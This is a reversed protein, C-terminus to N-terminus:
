RGPPRSSRPQANAFVVVTECAKDHLGQRNRDWLIQLFGLLGVSLSAAYGGFREFSMWWGMPKGDLRLVRVGAVKKGPTQGRWLALFATFYVASWGFGVGLDDAAGAIFQRIGHAKRAKDVEKDLSDARRDLRDARAELRDIEPGAVIRKVSDRYVAIVEPDGGEMALAFRQLVTDTSPPAASKGTVKLIAADIAHVKSSDDNEGMMDILGSRADRIDGLSAGAKRAKSLLQFSADEIAASDDGTTLTVAAGALAPVDSPAFNLNLAGIDANNAAEAAPKEERDRGKMRDRVSGFIDKIVIFLIISGIVRLATRVSRKAVGSRPDPASARFLVFGAALGLFVGGAKVLLAIFLLDIAMAWARRAPNALPVGILEPAVVFHEPTIISRQDRSM